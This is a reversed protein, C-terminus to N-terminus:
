GTVNDGIYDVAVYIIRIDAIDDAREASKVATRSLRIGIHMRYPLDTFANVFRDSQTARANEHLAAEVGIEIDLPILVQQACKVSLVRCKLKVTERRWLDM